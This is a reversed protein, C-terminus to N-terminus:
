HELFVCKRPQLPRGVVEAMVEAEAVMEPAVVM